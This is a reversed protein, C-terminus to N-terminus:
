ELISNYEIPVNKSYDIKPRNETGQPTESIEFDGNQLINLPPDDALVRMMPLLLMVLVLSCPHRPKLSNESAYPQINCFIIMM